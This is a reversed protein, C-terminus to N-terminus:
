LTGGRGGQAAGEAPHHGVPLVSGPHDFSVQLPLRISVDDTDPPPERLRKGEGEAGVLKQM